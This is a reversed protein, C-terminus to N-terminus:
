SYVQQTGPLYTGDIQTGFGSERGCSLKERRSRVSLDAITDM